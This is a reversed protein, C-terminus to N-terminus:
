SSPKLGGMVHRTFGMISLENMTHEKRFIPFIVVPWLSWFSSQSIVCSSLFLKNKELVNLGECAMLVCELFQPLKRQQQSFCWCFWYIEAVGTKQVTLIGRWCNLPSLFNTSLFIHCYLCDLKMNEAPELVFEKQATGLFPIIDAFM